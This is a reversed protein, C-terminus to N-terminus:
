CRDLRHGALPEIQLCHNRWGWFIRRLVIRGIIPVREDLHGVLALERHLRRRSWRKRSAIGRARLWPDNRSDLMLTAAAYRVLLRCRILFDTSQRTSVHGVLLLPDVSHFLTALQTMLEAVPGRPVEGM